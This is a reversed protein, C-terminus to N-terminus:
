LTELTLAQDFDAVVRELDWESGGCMPCREPPRHCSAGYSCGCCRLRTLSEHPHDAGFEDGGAGFLPANTVEAVVAQEELENESPTM